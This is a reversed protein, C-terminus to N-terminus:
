AGGRVSRFCAEVERADLGVAYAAAALDPGFIDLDGQRAADKLAGYLTRNRNGERAASIRAVLCNLTYPGHGISGDLTGTPPTRTDFVQRRSPRMATHLWHPALTPQGFPKTLWVYRRGNPHVSPPAVVFGTGGHKLDIGKCLKGPIHAIDGIAFWFHTGRSGTRAAWTEPLPGHEAVLRAFEREDDVDVVVMGEPPRVGINDDPYNRWHQIIRAHDLTASKFSGKFRPRKERPLLPFVPLGARRLALADALMSVTM